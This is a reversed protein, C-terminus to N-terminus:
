PSSKELARHRRKRRFRNKRMFTGIFIGRLCPDCSDSWGWFGFGSRDVEWNCIQMFILSCHYCVKSPSSYLPPKFNKFSFKFCKREIRWRTWTPRLSSSLASIPRSKWNLSLMSGFCNWITGISSSVMSWRTGSNTSAEKTRRSSNASMPKSNTPRAPFSSMTNPDEWVPYPLSYMSPFKDPLKDEGSFGVKM